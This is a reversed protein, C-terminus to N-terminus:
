RRLSGVPCGDTASRRPVLGKLTSSACPGMPSERRGARSRSHLRAFDSLFTCPGVGQTLPKYTLGGDPSHRCKGCGTAGANKM